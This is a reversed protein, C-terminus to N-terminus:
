GLSQVAGCHRDIALSEENHEGLNVLTELVHPVIYTAVIIVLYSSRNGVTFQEELPWIQIM